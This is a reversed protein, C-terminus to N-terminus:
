AAVALPRPLGAEDVAVMVFDASTVRVRAGGPSRRLAYAEVTVTISTRGTKTIETYFCVVDGAKVPQLFNLNSVSATAIRGNAQGSAALDAALDMQSIVWGAFVDGSPNIDAHTAVTRLSLEGRPKHTGNMM